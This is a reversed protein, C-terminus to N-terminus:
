LKFCALALLKMNNFILFFPFALWQSVIITKIIKLKDESKNLNVHTKTM